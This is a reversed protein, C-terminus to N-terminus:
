PGRVMDRASRVTTGSAITRDLWAKVAQRQDAPLQPLYGLVWRIAASGSRIQVEPGDPLTVGPLPTVALSFAQTATQQDVEGNPGIGALVTEWASRRLEASPTTQPHGTCGTTAALVLGLGAALIAVKRRGVPVTSM